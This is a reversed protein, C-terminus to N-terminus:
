VKHTDRLKFDSILTPNAEGFAFMDGALHEDSPWIATAFGSQQMREQPPM